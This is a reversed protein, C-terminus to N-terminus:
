GAKLGQATCPKTNPRPLCLYKGELLKGDQPPPKVSLIDRIASSQRGRGNTNLCKGGKLRHPSLRCLLSLPQHSPVTAQVLSTSSLHSFFGSFPSHRPKCPPPAPCHPCLSPKLTMEQFGTVWLSQHLSEPVMIVELSAFYVCM